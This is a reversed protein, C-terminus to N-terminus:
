LHAAEHLKSELRRDSFGDTPASRQGSFASLETANRAKGVFDAVISAFLDPRTILGLHGTREIVAARAGSIRQVYELTSDVPVVKDLEREGTVVLTPAAIRGCDEVFNESTTALARLGMSTPSPPAAILTWCTRMAFAIRDTARPFSVTLEGALRRSAGVFFLGALTRPARMYFRSAADPQWRAGPASVLVLAEARNPRRSAYRLAILGGFSVGCITARDIGCADLAEDVQRNFCEFMGTPEGRRRSGPVPALSFSIVRCRRALANVAPRMWEWRGQIGPIMVVPTGSGLDVM